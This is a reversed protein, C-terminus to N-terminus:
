PFQSTISRTPLVQSIKKAAVRTEVTVCLSGGTKQWRMEVTGRGGEFRELRSGRGELPCNVRHRSHIQREEWAAFAPLDTPGKTPQTLVEADVTSGSFKLVGDLGGM